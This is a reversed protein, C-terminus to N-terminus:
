RPPGKEFTSDWHKLYVDTFSHTNLQSADTFHHKEGGGGDSFLHSGTALAGTVPGGLWALPHARSGQGVLGSVPDLDNMHHGKYDPGAPYTWAAGGFTEIHVRQHLLAEAEGKSMGDEMLRLKVDDIARSTIIGGQSHAMINIDGSGQKLESYVSDSMTDVAPNKGLDLKDGLCQWLDKVAGVAGGESANYIGIVEAGARDAIQQLSDRHSDVSNLIGNVYLITHTVPSGDSPKVGVMQSFPTGPEYSGGGGMFYGDYRTDEWDPRLPDAPWPHDLPGISPGKPPTPPLAGDARGRLWSPYEILPLPPPGGSSASM